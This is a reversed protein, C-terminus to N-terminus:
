KLHAGACPTKTARSLTCRIIGARGVVGTSRRRPGAEGMGSKLLRMVDSRGCIVREMDRSTPEAEEGRRWAGAAVVVVVLSAAVLSIAAGGGM